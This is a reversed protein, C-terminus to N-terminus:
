DALPKFSLRTTTEWRQADSHPSDGIALQALGGLIIDGSIAGVRGGFCPIALIDNKRMSTACYYTNISGANGKGPYFDLTDKYDMDSYFNNNNQEIVLGDNIYGTADLSFGYSTSGDVTSYTLKRKFVGNINVLGQFTQDANGWMNELGFFKVSKKYENDGYFLGKKDLTGNKKIYAKFTDVSTDPAYSNGFGFVSRINSSDGCMLAYIFLMIYDSYLLIDWQNSLGGSTNNMAVHEVLYDFCCLCMVDSDTTSRLCGNSDLSTQYISIYCKDIVNGNKDYFSWWVIFDDDLKKDSIYYKYVGVSYERKIYFKPFEMMANYNGTTGNLYSTVDEGNESKTFDNPDLYKFIEGSQSLLCPKPLFFANIWENFNFTDTAYNMQMHNYGYNDVKEDNHMVHYNIITDPDSENQLWNFGYLEYGKNKVSACNVSANNAFGNSSIPFAKYYYTENIIVELTKDEFYSNEYMGFDKRSLTLVTTGDEINTPENDKSRVLIIKDVLCALQGDIITDSPEKFKVKFHNVKKDYVASISQMPQPVMNMIYVNDPSVATDVWNTGNKYQFKGTGTQYRLNGFGGDTLFDAEVNVNVKGLVVPESSDSFAAIINNDDDVYVSAISRGEATHTTKTGNIVWYGDSSIEAFFIDVGVSAILNYAVDSSNFAVQTDTTYSTDISVSCNTHVTGSTDVITIHGNHNTLLTVIETSEASTLNKIYALGGVTEIVEWTKKENLDIKTEAGNACFYSNKIYTLNDSIILYTNDTISTAAFKDFGGIYVYDSSHYYANPITLKDYYANDSVVLLSGNNATLYPNIIAWDSDTINEIIVSGNINTLKYRHFSTGTGGSSSVDISNNGLTITNGEIKADTIGYGALSTSKNAKKNIETSTKSSSWVKDSSTTTDDIGAGGAQAARDAESKARDAENKARDAQAKASNSSTNYANELEEVKENTEKEFDDIEEDVDIIHQSVRQEMTEIRDGIVGVPTFLKEVTVNLVSNIKIRYIPFDYVTVNDNDLPSVDSYAPDGAYSENSTPTGELIIVNCNEVGTQTDISYRICVLDHRYSLQAESAISLDVYADDMVFHRGAMMGQGNKIRITNNNLLEHAFEDRYGAFVYNGKGFYNANEVAMDGSTIHETGKHATIINILKSDAM